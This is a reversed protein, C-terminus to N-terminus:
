SEVKVNVVKLKVVKATSSPAMNAKSSESRGLASKSKPTVVPRREPHETLVEELLTALNDSGFYERPFAREFQANVQELLSGQQALLIAWLGLVTDVIKYKDANVTFDGEFVFISERMADAETIPQLKQNKGFLFMNDFGATASAWMELRCWGRRGYTAEDCVNLTDVHMADPALTLFYKCLSSYVALSEIALQKIM